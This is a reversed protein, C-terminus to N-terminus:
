RSVVSAALQGALSPSFAPLALLPNVMQGDVMIQYFLSPERSGDTQRIVGIAQGLAVRDGPQAFLTWDQAYASQVGDGHGIVTMEGHVPHWRVYLVKGYGSALVLTGPRSYFVVGHEPQETPKLEPADSMWSALPMGWPLARSMPRADQIAASPDLMRRLRAHIVWLEALQDRLGTMQRTERELADTKVRLRENDVHAFHADVISYTGVFLLMVAVAGAAIGIYVTRMSLVYSRNTMGSDPIIQVTVRREPAAALLAKIGM